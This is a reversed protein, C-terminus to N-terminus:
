SSRRLDAMERVLGDIDVLVDTSTGRGAYTLLQDTLEAAQESATAITRLEEDIPAGTAVKRSAAEASGLIAMLINNFDHAIGGAMVGLSQMKQTQGLREELRAKEAEARRQETLDRLLWLHGLPENWPDSLDAGMVVVHRAGRPGEVRVERAHPPGDALASAMVPDVTAQTLPRNVMAGADSELLQAAAKNALRVTGQTDVVLLGDPITDLIHDAAIEPTIEILRYRVAGVMTAVFMAVVLVFGFPYIPVGFAPAFDVAALYAVHNGLYLARARRHHPSGPPLRRMAERYARLAEAFVALLLAAPLAGWASYAPYFGWWYRYPTTLVPPWMVVVATVALSLAYYVRIHRRRENAIGATAVNVHYIVGPLMCVGLQALRAWLQARGLSEASAVMSMSMLWWAATLGYVAHVRGSTSAPYRALILGSVVLIAVAGTGLLTSHLAPSM